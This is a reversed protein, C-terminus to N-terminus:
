PTSSMMRSSLKAESSGSVMRTATLQTRLCAGDTTTTLWGHGCPEDYKRERNEDSRARQGGLAQEVRVRRLAPPPRELDANGGDRRRAQQVDGGRIRRGLVGARVVRDEIGRVDVEGCRVLDVHPAVEIRAPSDGEFLDL